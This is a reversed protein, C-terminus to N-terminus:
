PALPDPDVAVRGVKQRREGANARRCLTDVRGLELRDAGGGERREGIGMDVNRDDLGPETPAVVRGVYDVRADNKEGVDPELVGVHEALRDLLNSDFFKSNDMIFVRYNDYRVVRELLEDPAAGDQEAAGLLRRLCEDAM